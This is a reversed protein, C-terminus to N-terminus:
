QVVLGQIARTSFRPAEDIIEVVRVATWGEGRFTPVRVEDGEAVPDGDNHYTYVRTGTGLIVGVYQRM